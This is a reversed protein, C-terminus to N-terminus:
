PLSPLRSCHALPRSCRARTTFIWALLRWCRARAPTLLINRSRPFDV